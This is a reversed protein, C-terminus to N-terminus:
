SSQSLAACIQIWTQADGRMLQTVKPVDSLRESSVKRMQISHPSSQPNFTCLVHPM